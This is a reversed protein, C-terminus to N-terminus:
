ALGLPKVQTPFSFNHYLTEKLPFVNAFDELSDEETKSLFGKEVLLFVIRGVDDTKAIGWAELLLYALPGYRDHLLEVMGDLLERGSVHRTRKIKGLAYELAEFVLLFAEYDYHGDNRALERIDELTHQPKTM